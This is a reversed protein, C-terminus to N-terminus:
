RTFTGLKDDDYYELTLTNGAFTAKSITGPPANEGSLTFTFVDGDWHSLAFTDGRPGLALQLAGDRETIKAPGWYPNNYDGVYDSLPRAPAPQAPPQKGVLSGEPDDMPAFQQQYLTAWDERVEGYQVLDLFEAALAEPVGIPAANTLAIIGVKESPLVSFATAAGLAFAGSHSYQTRGSSTVSVNFGHGYFSARAQPSAAPVSIVQPTITPLLADPATIPVGDHSGNGMVMALWRTMDNVSSSVGGAPSQPDANRTHLPQYGDPTKVHGVAHNPRSAYDDFRSSTSTMGLPRYLVEESLVDWPKGSAVAVAEAATTLGFNSYAYSIRFPALPLFRLQELVQRRNYGLDELRDGAHDPLGSRHSYLDAITVNNTVYPDFLAFWPLKTLVPTNWDVVKDTVQHAVVTAAVSKSLSALQFVTDADVKDGSRVDRVGFGKAYMAKGDHVVAVAMGPIGSTRMLEDVLGDLKGIAEDVRGGPIELGSVENPPKDSQAPTSQQAPSGCGSLALMVAAIAAAAPGLGRTAGSERMRSTGWGAARNVM